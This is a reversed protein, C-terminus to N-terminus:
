SSKMNSKMTNTNIHEDSKKNRKRSKKETKEAGVVLPKKGKRKSSSSAALAAQEKAEEELHEKRLKLKARLRKRKKDLNKGDRGGDNRYTALKKLSVYQNLDEDDALLIDETTLGYSEPEVERYKFRTPIGGVIDGM